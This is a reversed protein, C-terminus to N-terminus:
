RYKNPLLESIGPYCVFVVGAGFGIITSGAAVVTTKRATGGVIQLSLM